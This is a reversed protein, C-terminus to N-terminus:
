EREITKGEYLMPYDKYKQENIKDLKVQAEERNLFIYVGIDSMKYHYEERVVININGNDINIATIPHEWIKEGGYINPIIERRIRKKKNLDKQFKANKVGDLIVQLNVTM